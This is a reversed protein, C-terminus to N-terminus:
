DQKAANIVTNYQCGLDIAQDQSKIRAEIKDSAQLYQSRKGQIRKFIKWRITEPLLSFLKVITPSPIRLACGSPTGTLILDGMDLDSFSSLESLTEAPKFVLNETNDRQRTDGNVKLELELQDLYHISDQDLLCLYPGVPCFTRYSKGKFFQTEPIQVDRASVDNAIVIGAIYESLNEKNIQIKDTIPQGIVLALEIEYDLLSVHKPKIIDSLSSCISASSKNFFMNYSKADPDMGSEIMHQRYNAGQCIVRSNGVIPSLLEIDALKIKQLDSLGQKVHTFITAKDALLIKTTIYKEALLHITEGNVIGWRPEGSFEFHALHTIM